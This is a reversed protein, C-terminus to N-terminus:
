ASINFAPNDPNINERQAAENWLRRFLAVQRTPDAEGSQRIKMVITDIVASRHSTLSEGKKMPEDGLGFGPAIEFPVSSLGRNEFAAEHQRYQENAVELLREAETESAYLVINDGRVNNMDRKMVDSNSTQDFIKGKVALGERDAAHIVDTFVKVADQSRPNLYIRRTLEPKSGAMKEDVYRDSSWHVFRGAIERQVFINVFADATQVELLDAEQGDATDIVFGHFDLTSRPVPNEKLTKRNERGEVYRRFAGKGEELKENFKRWAHKIEDGREPAAKVKLENKVFDTLEDRSQIAQEHNTFFEKDSADPLVTDFHSKIDFSKSGDPKRLDGSLAGRIFEDSLPASQQRATEFTAFPAAHEHTEEVSVKPMALTTDEPQTPSELAAENANVVDPTIEGSEAPAPEPEESQESTPLVDQLMEAIKSLAPDDPNERIFAHLGDLKELLDTVQQEHEPNKREPSSGSLKESM